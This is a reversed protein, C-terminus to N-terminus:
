IGQSRLEEYVQMPVEIMVVLNNTGCNHDKEGKKMTNMTHDHYHRRTFTVGLFGAAASCRFKGCTGLM